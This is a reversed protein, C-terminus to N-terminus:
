HCGFKKKFEEAMHAHHKLYVHPKQKAEIEKHKHMRHENNMFEKQSHKKRM